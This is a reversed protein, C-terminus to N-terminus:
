LNDAAVEIDELLEGVETDLSTFKVHKRQSDILYDFELARVITGTVQANQVNQLSISAALKPASLAFGSSHIVYLKEKTLVLIGLRLREKGEEMETFNGNSAFKLEIEQPLLDRWKTM